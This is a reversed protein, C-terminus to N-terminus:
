PNRRVGPWRGVVVRDLGALDQVVRVEVFGAEAFRRAVRDPQGWKPSVELAVWGGPHLLRPADNLIRAHLETGEPGPAFVAVAPEALVERPLESRAQPPVYPPNSVVAHALVEEALLPTLADGSRFRVRDLVGHRRANEYAVALADPSLDTAYVTADPRHVAIAVAVAGSGTGVEVVVPDRVGRLVELTLEVLLETEPRPILVREDVLFRLGYFEREGVLYATPTGAGRAEVLRVYRAWVEPAPPRTWRLYLGARDLGAAHRLLVEAELEADEVGCARLHERGLLYADRLTQPLATRTDQRM